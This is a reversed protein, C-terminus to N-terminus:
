GGRILNLIENISYTFGKGKWEDPVTYQLEALGGISLFRCPIVGKVMKDALAKDAIPWVDYGAGLIHLKPTVNIPEDNKFAFYVSGKLWMVTESAKTPEDFPSLNGDFYDVPDGVKTPVVRSWGTITFGSPQQKWVKVNKPAVGVGFHLIRFPREDSMKFIDDGSGLGLEGLYNFDLTQGPTMETLTYMRELTSTRAVRFFYLEFTMEKRVEKPFILAFNYNEKLVLSRIPAKLDYYAAESLFKV